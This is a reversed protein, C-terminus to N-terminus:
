SSKSRSKSLHLKPEKGKALRVINSRHKFLILIAIFLGDAFFGPLFFWTLIPNAICGVISGVSMRRSIWVGLIVLILDGLGIWPNLLLLAGFATAVGKGGHFHFVVPWIHGLLVPIVMAAALFEGGIWRGALVVLAGKGVDIMLTLVGARKGLVRTVNTTGANGSGVKNIDIGKAASLITAPSINGVFYAVAAMAFCVAFFSPSIGSDAQLRDLPTNTTQLLYLAHLGNQKGAGCLWQVLMSVLNFM